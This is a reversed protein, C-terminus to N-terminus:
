SLFTRTRLGLIKLGLRELRGVIGTFQNTWLWQRDFEAFTMSSAVGNTNVFRLTQKDLDFGNLVFYHLTRKGPAILPIVPKGSSLQNLVDDLAAGTRLTLDSKFGKLVKHLVSPRTGLHLKFLLSENRVKRRLSDYSVDFGYSRLFRSGSNPGCSFGDTQRQLGDVAITVNEGNRVEATGALINLTDRDDGGDVVDGRSISTITDNDLQGYLRNATANDGGHLFDNGSGGMILDAGEGGILTDNGGEGVLLDNGGEGLLQDPGDGGFLQDHGDGGFVIDAAAGTQVFDNGAGARVTTPLNIFSDLRDDGAGLDVEISQVKTADFTFTNNDTRTLDKVVITPGSPAPAAGPNTLLIIPGASEQKIEVHNNASDTVVHLVGNTLTAATVAMLDRQELTEVRLSAKKPRAPRHTHTRSGFIRFLIRQM